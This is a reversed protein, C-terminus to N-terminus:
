FLIAFPLVLVSDLEGLDAAWVGLGFDAATNLSCFFTFSQEFGFRLGSGLRVLCGLYVVNIIGFGGRRLCHTVNGGRRM